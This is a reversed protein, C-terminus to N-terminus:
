YAIVTHIPYNSLRQRGKLDTLEILFAIGVVKAGVKEVLHCAARMTGGTALLDDVMLVKAGPRVADRHMEVTDSGYELDYTVSETRYPLKGKKRIPIFGAGLKAAVAAGFIFGRAEVAAVYQVGAERFPECLADIAATFAKPDALLPTIDRFLIGKKPWDAIDRIHRALPIRETTM